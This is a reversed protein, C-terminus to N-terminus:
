LTIIVDQNMGFPHFACIDNCHRWLSRHRRLHGSDGNNAWTNTWACIVSFALAGRWQCKHPSNVPSRRIEWVFPWYRSFHKWKIVGDHETESFGRGIVPLQKMVGPSGFHTQSWKLIIPLIAYVVFYQHTTCSTPGSGHPKIGSFLLRWM